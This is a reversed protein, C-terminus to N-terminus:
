SLSNRSSKAAFTLKTLSESDAPCGEDIVGVLGSDADVAGEAGAWAVGGTGAGVAPSFVVVVSSM